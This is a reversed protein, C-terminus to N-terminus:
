EKTAHKDPLRFIRTGGDWCAVAIQREDPSVDIDTADVVPGFSALQRKKALDIVTLRTKASSGAGSIFVVMSKRPSLVIKSIYRPLGYLVESSDDKSNWKLLVKRNEKSDVASGIMTTDDLMGALHVYKYRSEKTVSARETWKETKLDYSDGTESLLRKGDSSFMLQSRAPSALRAELSQTKASWVSAEDGHTAVFREGDPSFVVKQFQDFAPENLRKPARLAELDVLLLGPSSDTRTAVVYRNKGPARDLSVIHDEPLPLAAILRANEVDWIRLAAQFNNVTVLQKGDGSFRVGSISPLDLLLEDGRTTIAEARCLREFTHKFSGFEWWCASYSGDMGQAAKRALKQDQALWAVHAAFENLENAQPWNDAVSEAAERLSSLKYRGHMLAYPEYESQTYAIKAFVRLGLEGPLEERMREAFKELEGPEGHWRPLLYVAMVEYLRLCRSDLRMGEAFWKDVKERDTGDAMGIQLREVYLDADVKEKKEAEDLLERALTLRERFPRWADEAVAGAFGDGRAHWAWARYISAAAVLPVSSNPYATQWRKLLHIRRQYSDDSPLPVQSLRLYLESVMPLASGFNIHENIRAEEFLEEFDTFCEPTPATNLRQTVERIRSDFPYKKSEESNSDAQQLEVTQQGPLPPDAATTPVPRALLALVLVGPVVSFRLLTGTGGAAPIAVM